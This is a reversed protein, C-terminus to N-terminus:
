ARPIRILDSRFSENDRKPTWATQFRARTSLSCFQTRAKRGAASTLTTRKKNLKNSVFMRRSLKVEANVCGPDHTSPESNALAKKVDCGLRHLWTNPRNARNVHGSAM